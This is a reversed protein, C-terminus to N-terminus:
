AGVANDRLYSGRYRNALLSLTGCCTQVNNRLSVNQEGPFQDEAAWGTSYDTYYRCLQGVEINAEEEM